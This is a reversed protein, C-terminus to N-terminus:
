ARVPRIISIEPSTGVRVPFRAWVGTGPSVYLPMGKVQYLGLVYKHVHRLLPNVFVVQGGHTHGSLQADYGLRAADKATDPRHRLLIKLPSEPAGRLAAVPDPMPGEGFREAMPDTVGAFVVPHGKFEVVSHANTLVTLGMGAFAQMWARYGSYYEHNGVALFVGHPARLRALHKVEDYLRAVTGDVVDGVIVIVDPRAANTDDVVRSLWDGDLGAGVHLDCLMAIRLGELELPLGKVPLRVDKVEPRQFVGRVGVAAVAVGCLALLAARRQRGVATMPESALSPVSIDRRSFRLFVRWLSKGIWAALRSLDWLLCLGVLTLELSQLIGGALAVQAITKSPLSSSVLNRLILMNQSVLLFLVLLCWIFPRPLPLHRLLRWWVYLVGIIALSSTTIYFYSM